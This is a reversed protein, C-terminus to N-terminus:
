TGIDQREHAALAAEFDQPEISMVAQRNASGINETALRMAQAERTREWLTRVARANGFSKDGGREAEVRVSALEAAGVAADDLVFGEHSALGLLIEALEAATYDEFLLTRTFRSALGPNSALFRRMEQTYGAVIVCLRGRHDEMLKLLTEIAERGFDNGADAPALSYAEDVFLVGDLAAEVAARTKIATQGVYGAVLQSRDVEVVHGSKLRGLARLVDGMLRAATTKGTGPNGLFVLHLSPDSTSIGHRQREQEAKLVAALKKVEKKVSHWGTMADLEVLVDELPRDKPRRIALTSPGQGNPEAATNAARAPAPIGLKDARVLRWAMIAVAILFITGAHTEAIAVIVILVALGLLIPTPDFRM